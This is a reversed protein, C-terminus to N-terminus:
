VLYLVLSQQKDWKGLIQSSSNSSHIHLSQMWHLPYATISAMTHRETRWEPNLCDSTGEAALVIPLQQSEPSEESEPRLQLPTVKGLSIPLWCRIVLGQGAIFARGEKGM